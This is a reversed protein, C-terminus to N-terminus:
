LVPHNAHPKHYYGYASVQQFHGHSDVWSHRINFVQIWVVSIANTKAAQELPLSTPIYCWTSVPM